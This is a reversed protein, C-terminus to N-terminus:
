GERLWSGPPARSWRERFQDGTLDDPLTLGDNVLLSLRFDHLALMLEVLVVVFSLQFAEGSRSVLTGPWTKPTPSRSESRSSWCPRSSGVSGRWVLPTSVHRTGSRVWGGADRSGGGCGFGRPYCGFTAPGTLMTSVALRALSPRLTRRFHLCGEQRSDHTARRPYKDRRMRCPIPPPPGLRRGSRAFMRRGCPNMRAPGPPKVSPTSCPRLERLSSGCGRM